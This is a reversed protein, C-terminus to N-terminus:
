PRAAALAAVNSVTLNTLSETIKNIYSMIIEFDHTFDKARLFEQMETKSDRTQYIVLFYTSILGFIASVYDKTIFFAAASVLSRECNGVDDKLHRCHQLLEKDSGGEACIGQLVEEMLIAKENCYISLGTRLATNMFAMLTFLYIYTLFSQDEATREKFAVETENNGRSEPLRLLTATFAVVTLLDRLCGVLLVVSFVENTRNLLLQLRVYNCRTNEFRVIREAKPLDVVDALSDAVEKFGLAINFVIILALMQPAVEYFVVIFHYLSFWACSAYVPLQVMGFICPDQSTWGFNEVLLTTSRVAVFLGLAGMAACIVSWTLAVYAVTKLLTVHSAGSVTFVGSMAESLGRLLPPICRCKHILYGATVPAHLFVSLRFIGTVATFFELQSLQDLYFGIYDDTYSLVSFTVSIWVAVSWLLLTQHYPQRDTRRSPSPKVASWEPRCPFLGLLQLASTFVRPVSDSPLVRQPTLPRPVFEPINCACTM